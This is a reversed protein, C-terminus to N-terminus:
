KEGQRMLIDAQRMWSEAMGWSGYAKLPETASLANEIHRIALGVVAEVKSKTM